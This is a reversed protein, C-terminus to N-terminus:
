GQTETQRCGLEGFDVGSCKLKQTFPGLMIKLCTDVLIQNAACSHFLAWNNNENNIIQPRTPRDAGFASGAHTSIRVLLMHSMAGDLPVPRVLIVASLSNSRRLIKSGEKHAFIGAFGLFITLAPPTAM